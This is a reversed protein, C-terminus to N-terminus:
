TDLPDDAHPPPPTFRPGRLREVLSESDREHWPATLVIATERGAALAEIEDPVGLPDFLLLRDDDVIAYSPVNPDGTKAGGWGPPRGQWHWLGTRLERM